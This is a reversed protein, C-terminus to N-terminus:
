LIRSLWNALEVVQRPLSKTEEIPRARFGSESEFNRFGQLSVWEHKSLRALKSRLKM